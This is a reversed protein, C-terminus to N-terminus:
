DLEEDLLCPLSAVERRRPLISRAYRSSVGVWQGQSSNPSSRSRGSTEIKPSIRAADNHAPQRLRCKILLSYRKEMALWRLRQAEQEQEQELKTKAEVERQQKWEDRIDDRMAQRLEREGNMQHLYCVGNMMMTASTSLLFGGDCLVM